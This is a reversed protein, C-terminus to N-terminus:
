NKRPADADTPAILILQASGGGDRILAATNPAALALLEKDNINRFLVGTKQTFVQPVKSAIVIGPKNAFPKTHVLMDSPLPRTTIVPCFDQTRSNWHVTAWIAVAVLVTVGLSASMNALTRIKRRRRALHLTETLLQEQFDPANADPFVDNLLSRYDNARNM